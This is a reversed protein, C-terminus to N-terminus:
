IYTICLAAHMQKEEVVAGRWKGEEAKNWRCQSVKGSSWLNSKKQQQKLIALLEEWCSSQLIADQSTNGVGGGRVGEGAAWEGEPPTKIVGQGGIPSAQLLSAGICSSSLFRSEMEGQGGLALSLRRGLLIISSPSAIPWSSQWCYDCFVHLIFITENKKGSGKSNPTHSPFSLCTDLLVSTLSKKFIHSWPGGDWGMGGEGGVKEEWGQVVYNQFLYDWCRSCSKLCFSPMPKIQSSTQLLLVRFVARRERGLKFSCHEGTKSNKGTHARWQEHASDKIILSLMSSSALCSM